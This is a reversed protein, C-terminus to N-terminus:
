DLKGGEEITMLDTESEKSLAKGTKVDWIEGEIQVTEISTYKNNRIRKLIKQIGEQKRQERFSKAREREYFRYAETGKIEPIIEGKKLERLEIKTEEESEIRPIAGRGRKNHSSYRTYGCLNCRFRKSWKRGKAFLFGKKCNPCRRATL